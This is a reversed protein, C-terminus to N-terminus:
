IVLFISHMLQKAHMGAVNHQRGADMCRQTHEIYGHIYQMDNNYLKCTSGKLM